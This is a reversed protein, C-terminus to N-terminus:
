PCVQEIAGSAVDGVSARAVALLSQLSAITARLEDIGQKALLATEQTLRRLDEAQLQRVEVASRFTEGAPSHWEMALTAGLKGHVGDIGAAVEHLKAVLQELVDIQAALANLGAQAISPSAVFQQVAQSALECAGNAVLSMDTAIETMSPIDVMVM